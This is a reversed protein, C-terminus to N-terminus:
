QGQDRGQAGARHGQRDSRWDKATGRTGEAGRGASEEKRLVVTRLLLVGAQGKTVAVKPLKRPEEM